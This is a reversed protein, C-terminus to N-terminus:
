MIAVCVLQSYLVNPLNPKLTVCTEKAKVQKQDEDFMWLYKLTSM